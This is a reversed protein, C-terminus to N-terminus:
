VCLGSRASLHPIATQEKKDNKQIKQKAAASRTMGAAKQQPIPRAELPEIQPTNKNNRRNWTAILDPARLETEAIWIRYRRSKGKPLVLYEKKGPQREREGEIADIEFEDEKDADVPGQDEPRAHYKKLRQIAVTFRKNRNNLDVVQANLRSPGTLKAIRYPGKWARYLKKTQGKLVRLHPHWLMVEDGPMLVPEKHYKDYAKKQRQQSALINARAKELDETLRAVRKRAHERLSNAPIRDVLGLEIDIGQQPDRGMQLYFPSFGTTENIACNYAYQVMPLHIDWDKADESVIRRFHSVISKNVREALGNAQPHYPSIRVGKIGLTDLLAKVEKNVNEKGNDYRIEEPIGHQRLLSQEIFQM